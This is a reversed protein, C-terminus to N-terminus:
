GSTDAYAVLQFGLSAAPPPILCQDFRPLGPVAVSFLRVSGGWRKLKALFHWSFLTFGQRRAPSRYCLNRDM